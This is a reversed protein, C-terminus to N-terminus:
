EIKRIKALVKIIHLFFADLNGSPPRYANLIYIKRTFPLSVKLTLLELNENMVEFDEKTLVDHRINNQIITALGGGRKEEGKSNLYLRDLRHTVCGELNFINDGMHEKLWTESINIVNANLSELFENVTASKSSVSQANWFVTKFGKVKETM